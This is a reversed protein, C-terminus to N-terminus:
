ADRGHREERYEKLLLDKIETSKVWRGIQKIVAEINKAKVGEDGFDLLVPYITEPNIHIRMIPMPNNRACVRIGSDEWQSNSSFISVKVGNKKFWLQFVNAVVSCLENAIEARRFKVEKLLMDFPAKELDM